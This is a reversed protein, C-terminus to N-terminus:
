CRAAAELLTTKGGEPASNLREALTGPPPSPRGEALADLLLATREADLDEYYDDNVQLIPANVCAGLCEVELLTFLGNEDTEGFELGTKEKCVRVVEDSGRLWCPTTTCVHLRYKGVPERYYMTYFSAVEWVRIAPLDLFGAVYEIVAPSTWGLQRQALDLLPMVASQQRGEPYKAVVARAAKLNDATFAFSGAAGTRGKM